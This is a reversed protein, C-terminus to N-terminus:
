KRQFPTTGIQEVFQPHDIFPNRNGQYREIRDNRAKEWNDPPDNKHWEFYQNIRENWFRDRDANHFIPDNHYRIIFYLLARAVNGKAEDHPEFTSGGFQSGAVTRYSPNQVPGFPFHGRTHNPKSFSPYLHHLDSVMPLKKKFFSQPWLHECNVFDYPTGDQNQDGPELYRRGKKKGFIASYITLVEGGQQDVVEYLYRKAELYEHFKFGDGTRFHLAQFLEWGDLDELGHHQEPLTQQVPTKAYLAQFIAQKSQEARLSPLVLFISIGFIILTRM